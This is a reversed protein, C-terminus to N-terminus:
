IFRLNEGDWKQGVTPIQQVDGFGVSIYAIAGEVWEGLEPRMQQVAIVENNSNICAYTKM